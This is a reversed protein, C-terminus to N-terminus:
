KINEKNNNFFFFSRMINGMIQKNHKKASRPDYM